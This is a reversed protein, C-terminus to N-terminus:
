AFNKKLDTFRKEFLNFSLMSILYALIFSAVFILLIENIPLFTFVLVFCIPHYVYLGFSIKGTYRLMKYTLIKYLFNESSSIIAIGVLTGYFIALIFHRISKEVISYDGNKFSIYILPLASIILLSIFYKKNNLTLIKEKELISLMAGMALEDFRAVTFQSEEFNNTILIFRTIFSIVVLLLIIWKIKDFSFFYIVFPWFLYFHEEVSLSWYHSPGFSEWNFTSAFNQLFTFHYIQQSFDSISTNSIIPIIFYYVLLFFYYLPFIRLARRFYFNRFYFDQRKNDVLIRTILFGSLVFFLSVGTKGFLSIKKILLLFDNSPEYTQFFHFVMVMLVAIGRVGDLQNYHKTQLNM